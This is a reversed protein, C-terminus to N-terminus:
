VQTNMTQKITSTAKEVVKSTLELEQSFRYVGAQMALLEPTSFSKGSLSLNMIEELKNQGQMVDEMIRQVGNSFSGQNLDNGIAPVAPAVQNARAVRLVDLNGGTNLQTNQVQGVRQSDLVQNFQAANPEQAQSLQDAQQMANQVEKMMEGAAKGAGSSLPDTM